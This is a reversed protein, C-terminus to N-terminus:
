RNITKAWELTKLFYEVKIKVLILTDEGRSNPLNIVNKVIIQECPIIYFIIYCLLIILLKVLFNKEVFNWYQLLKSILVESWLIESVIYDTIKYIM